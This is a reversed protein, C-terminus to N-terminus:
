RSPHEGMLLSSSIVIYFIFSARHIWNSTRLSDNVVGSQERNDDHNPKSEISILNAM